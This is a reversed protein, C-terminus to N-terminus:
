YRSGQLRKLMRPSLGERSSPTGHNGLRDAGSTAVQHAPNVNTTSLNGGAPYGVSPAVANMTSMVGMSFAPYLDPRSARSTPKPLVPPPAPAFGYEAAMEKSQDEVKRNFPVAFDRKVVPM